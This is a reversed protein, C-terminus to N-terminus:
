LIFVVVMVLGRCFVKWWIRNSKKTISSMMKFIKVITDKITKVECSLVEGNTARRGKETVENRIVNIKTDRCKV